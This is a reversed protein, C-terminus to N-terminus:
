SSQDRFIQILQEYENHLDLVRCLSDSVQLSKQAVSKISNLAIKDVNHDSRTELLKLCLNLERIAYAIMPRWLEPDASITKDTSQQGHQELRESETRTLKKM